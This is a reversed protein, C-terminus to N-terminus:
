HTSLTYLGEFAEELKPYASEQAFTVADEVAQRAEQVMKKAEDETLIGNQILQTPFSVV